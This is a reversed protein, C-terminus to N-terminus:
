HTDKFFNQCLGDRSLDSTVCHIGGDWLFRHRFPVVHATINYRSLADFVQQNHNSVIVNHPDVILMNVDFVTEEVYGVWHDLWTEVTDIVDQDHEFGPIWWRGQNKQKLKLFEEVATLGQNALYVVEWGPYTNQYTPADYLSIILGPAVPCYVADSHGGTDIIHNRSTPFNRDVHKQFTTHDDIHWMTGVFLDQGIRAINAGSFYPESFPLLQNINSKAQNFINAYCEDDAALSTYLQQGYMLMHDRPMMPPKTYRGHEDTLKPLDPRLIEVGFQELKNILNVYDQETEQAIREFLERVHASKIWSYYEPPWSRGVICVQLPDWHQYVSWTM